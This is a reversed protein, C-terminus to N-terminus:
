TWTDAPVVSTYSRRVAIVFERADDTVVHVHYLPGCFANDFFITALFNEIHPADGTIQPVHAYSKEVPSAVFTTM